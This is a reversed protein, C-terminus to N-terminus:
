KIHHDHDKLVPQFSRVDSTKLFYSEVVFVFIETLHLNECRSCLWSCRLRVAALVALLASVVAHLRVDSSRSNNNPMSVNSSLRWGSQTNHNRNLWGGRQKPEGTRKWPLQESIVPPLRQGASGGGVCGKTIAFVGKAWGILPPWSVAACHGVSVQTGTGRKKKVAPYFTLLFTGGSSSAPPPLFPSTVHNCDTTQWTDAASSQKQRNFWNKMWGRWVVTM